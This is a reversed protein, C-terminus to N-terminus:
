QRGMREQGIKNARQCAMELISRSIESIRNKDISLTKSDPHKHVWELAYTLPLIVPTTGSLNSWAISFSECLKITLPLQVINPDFPNACYNSPSLVSFERCRSPRHPYIGCSGEELFPCSIHLEFYRRNLEMVKQKDTNNRYCELITELLGANELKEVANTFRNLIKKKRKKPLHEVVDAIIVAEPPSLPVMQQCCVGCGAACSIKKNFSAAIEAGKETLLNCLPLLDYVIDRFLRSHNSQPIQWSVIGEPFDLTICHRKM